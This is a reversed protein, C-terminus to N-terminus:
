HKIILLKHERHSSNKLFKKKLTEKLGPVKQSLYWCALIKWWRKDWNEPILESLLEKALYENDPDKVYRKFKEDYSRLCFFFMHIGPIYKIWGQKVSRRYSMDIKPSYGICELGLPDWRPTLEIFAKFYILHLFPIEKKNRQLFFNRSGSNLAKDCDLLFFDRKWIQNTYYDGYPDWFDDVKRTPCLDNSCILYEHSAIKSNPSCVHDVLNIYDRFGEGLVLPSFCRPCRLTDKM